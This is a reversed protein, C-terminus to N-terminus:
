TVDAIAKEIWPSLNRKIDAYADYFLPDYVSPVYGRGDNKTFRLSDFPNAGKGCTAKTKMCKLNHIHIGFVGLGREWARCIEYNVWERRATEKGILVILCSKGKMNEDIWREVGNPTRRIQEWSNPTAPENGEFAGMQRVQQVRFVDNDFHFSYFVKRKISTM